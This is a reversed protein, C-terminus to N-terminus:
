SFGATTPYLVYVCSVSLCCCKLVNLVLGELGTCVLLTKACLSCTLLNAYLTYKRAYCGRHIYRINPFGIISFQKTDRPFGVSGTSLMIGAKTVKYRAVPAFLGTSSALDSDISEDGAEWGSM